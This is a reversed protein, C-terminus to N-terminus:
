TISPKHNHKTTALEVFKVTVRKSTAGRGGRDEKWTCVGAGVGLSQQKSIYICGATVNRGPELDLPYDGAAIRYVETARIRTDRPVGRPSNPRRPPM